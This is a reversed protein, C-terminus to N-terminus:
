RDLYPLRLQAAERRAARMARIKELTSVLMFAATAVSAAIAAGQAVHALTIGAGTGAVGLITKIWDNM